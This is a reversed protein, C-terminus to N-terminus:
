RDGRDAPAHSIAIRPHCLLRVQKPQLFPHHVDHIARPERLELGAPPLRLVGDVGVEVRQSARDAVAVCGCLRLALMGEIALPEVLV